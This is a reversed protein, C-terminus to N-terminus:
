AGTIELNGIVVSKGAEVRKGDVVCGKGPGDGVVHTLSNPVDETYYIIDEEEKLERPFVGLKNGETQHKIRDKEVVMVWGHGIENVECKGTM